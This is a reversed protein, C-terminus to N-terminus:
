ELDEIKIKGSMYMMLKSGDNEVIIVFDTIANDEKSASVFCRVYEKADIEKNDSVNFEELLTKFIDMEKRLAQCTEKSADAYNIFTISTVGKLFDKSFQSRLMMKVMGLGGGKAVSMCDVGKVNEYKKVLENVKSEVKSSEQAYGAVMTSLLLAVLLVIKKTSHRM